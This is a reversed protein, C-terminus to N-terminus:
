LYESIIGAVDANLVNKLMNNIDQNIDQMDRPTKKVGHIYYHSDITNGHKDITISSHGNLSHKLLNDDLINITYKDKYFRYMVLDDNEVRIFTDCKLNFGLDVKILSLNPLSRWNNPMYMLRDFHSNYDIRVRGIKIDIVLSGICSTCTIYYNKAKYYRVFGDVISFTITESTNAAINVTTNAAINATTNTTTQSVDYCKFSEFTAPTNINYTYNFMNSKVYIRTDNFIRINIPLVNAYDYAHITKLIIDTNTIKYEAIPTKVDNIYEHIILINATNRNQLLYEIYEHTKIYEKTHLIKKIKTKAISQAM